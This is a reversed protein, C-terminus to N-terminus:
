KKLWEVLRPPLDFQILNSYVPRTFYRFRCYLFGYCVAEIVSDTARTWGFNSIVASRNRKLYTDLKDQTM